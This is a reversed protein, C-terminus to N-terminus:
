DLCTIKSQMKEMKLLKEQLYKISEYDGHVYMNEGGEGVGITCSVDKHTQTTEEVSTYKINNAKKYEILTQHHSLGQKAM